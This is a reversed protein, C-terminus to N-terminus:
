GERVWQFPYSRQRDIRRRTNRWRLAVEVKKDKSLLDWLDLEGSTVMYGPPGMFVEWIDGHATIEVEQVSFPETFQVDRNPGNGEIKLREFEAEQYVSQFM